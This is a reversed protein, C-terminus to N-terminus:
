KLFGNLKFFDFASLLGRFVFSLPKKDNDFLSFCYLEDGLSVHLGYDHYIRSVCEENDVHCVAMNLFEVNCHTENFLSVLSKKVNM